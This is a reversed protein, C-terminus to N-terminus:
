RKAKYSGSLTHNIGDSDTFTGSFTGTFIDGAAAPFENLTSTLGDSSINILRYDPLYLTILPYTGPQGPCVFAIYIDNSGGSVSVQFEGPTIEEVSTHVDFSALEEGDLTCEIYENADICVQQDGLDIQYNGSELPVPLPTGVKFNELDFGQFVTSSSPTCRVVTYSFTGNPQVFLSDTDDMGIYGNTVPQGSCDVLRGSITYINATASELIIDPLVTDENLPGITQTHLIENGCPDTIKITMEMEVGAIVPGMYYGEDDTLGFIPWGTDTAILMIAAQAAGQQENNLYVRGSLQVSPMEIDCNWYSFHSVKAVYRNGVRQASGEEIWRAKLLDYYWMAIENPAKAQQTSIIPVNMEVEKGEAIAVTGQDGELEAAIMGYTGLIREEGAANIARLDGPMYFGLKEDGPNLYHAFVRIQGSGTTANAPFTLTAGGPINVVGGTSNDFSGVQIKRILQIQVPKEVHERVFYARSFDYYGNATVRLIANDSYQKLGELRFDKYYETYTFQTGSIVRAGGISYGNQDNVRGTFTFEVRRAAELSDKHCAFTSLLFLCALLLTLNKM